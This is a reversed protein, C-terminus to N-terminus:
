SDMRIMLRKHHADLKALMEEKLLRPRNENGQCKKADMKRHCGGSMGDNTGIKYASSLVL